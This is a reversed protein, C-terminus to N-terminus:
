QTHQKQAVSYDLGQITQTRRQTYNQIAISGGRTSYLTYTNNYQLLGTTSNQPHKMDEKNYNGSPQRDEM